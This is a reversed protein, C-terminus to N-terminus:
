TPYFFPFNDVESSFRMGAYGGCLIMMHTHDSMRLREDSEPIRMNKREEAEPVHLRYSDIERMRVTPTKKWNEPDYALNQL